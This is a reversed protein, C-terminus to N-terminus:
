SITPVMRRARLARVAVMVLVAAAVAAVAVLVFLWVSTGGSTPTPPPPPVLQASGGAPPEPAYRAAADAALYVAALALGITTALTTTLRFLKM